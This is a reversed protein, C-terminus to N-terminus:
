RPSASESSRRSCDPSCDPPRPISIDPKPIADWAADATEGVDDLVEGPSTGGDRPQIDEV